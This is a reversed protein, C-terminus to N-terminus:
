DRRIHTKPAKVLYTLRIFVLEVIVLLNYEIIHDKPQRSYARSLLKTSSAHMLVTYNCFFACKFVETMAIVMIDLREDIM